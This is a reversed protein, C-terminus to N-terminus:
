LIQKNVSQLLMIPKDTLQGDIALKCHVYPLLMFFSTDNVQNNILTVRNTPSKMGNINTNNHMSIIKERTFMCLFMKM